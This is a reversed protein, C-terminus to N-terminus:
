TKRFPATLRRYAAIAREPNRTFLLYALTLALFLVLLVPHPVDARLAMAAGLGLALSFASMTLVVGTVSFGGDLMLHHAHTRDAHFPSHGAMLRRVILVLCDIVPPAILFPALVPTVPHVPNQTLRFTAWAIILGLYASGSNGLFIRARKRWPLRINFALYAVVAGTIVTLGHALEANGSYLSAAVLMVLACACLSGALGDIGDAMNLANILGVTALVTFPISLYGLDFAGLGFVPGINEVRVDGILVIALAAAAQALVRIPWPIDHIDDLVGTVLLILAAVGLGLLQATPETLLVATLITGIAIAIGGTVPIPVGHDKRGGTPHDVLGLRAAFPHLLFIIATVASFAAVFELAATKLFDATPFM